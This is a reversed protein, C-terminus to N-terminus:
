QDVGRQAPTEVRLHGDTGLREPRQEVVEPGAPQGEELVAGDHRDDFRQGLVGVDPLCQCGGADAEIVLSRIQM